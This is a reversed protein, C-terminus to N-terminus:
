ALDQLIKGVIVYQYIQKLKLQLKVISEYVIRLLLHHLGTPALAQVLKQGERIDDNSLIERRWTNISQWNTQIM